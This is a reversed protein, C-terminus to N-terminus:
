FSRLGRVGMWYGADLMSYEAWGVEWKGSVM